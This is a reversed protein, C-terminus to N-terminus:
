HRTSGGRVEEVFDFGRTSGGLAFEIRPPQAADEMLAALQLFSDSVLRRRLDDESQWEEAYRITGQSEIDTSVSCSVWGHRTRIDAALSHLAMVLPRTQGFPVLWEITMQVNTSSM